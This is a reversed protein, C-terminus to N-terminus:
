TESDKLKMLVDNAKTKILNYHSKHLDVNLKIKKRMKVINLFNLFALFLFKYISFNLIKRLYKKELKFCFKRNKLLFVNFMNKENLILDDFIKIQDKYFRSGAVIYTSGLTRRYYTFVKDLLIFQSGFSRAMVIQLPLDEVVDFCNLYSIVKDNKLLEVDYFMNPANNNSPWKFREIPKKDKYIYYSAIIMIIDSKKESIIQNTLDLPFGSVMSGNKALDSFMFINEFSYVDDGATIKIRDANVHNIMNILSRCTGINKGNFLKIVNRFLNKNILLWKNVLYVTNDKSEDDNIILDIEINEGYMEVLFKISELHEIIYKEHNFTLVLFSFSKM